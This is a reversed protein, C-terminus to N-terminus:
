HREGGREGGAINGAPGSLGGPGVGKGRTHPIIVNTSPHPVKGELCLIGWSVQCAPVPSAAVGQKQPGEGLGAEWTHYNRECCRTYAFLLLPM